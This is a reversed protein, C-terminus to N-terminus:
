GFRDRGRGAGTGFFDLASDFESREDIFEEVSETNPTASAAEGGELLYVM